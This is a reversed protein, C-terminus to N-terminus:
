WAMNIFKTNTKIYLPHKPSGNKNVHLCKAFPFMEKIQQDRGRVKFSGWGFIVENNAQNANTQLYWYAEIHNGETMNLKAPDTSIFTFLNNMYFGGYGNYDAIAKIRRITPDDNDANATSPNLGIFMFLPKRDDWIRWLMLRHKGDDSFKAGNNEKGFLTM